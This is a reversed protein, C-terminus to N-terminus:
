ATEKYRESYSKLVTRILRQYRNGNKEAAGKFFEVTGKDLELTIKVLDKKPLLEEPPPLFNEVRTLKGIPQDPDVKAKRMTKKKM